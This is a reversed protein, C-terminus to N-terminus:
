HVEAPLTLAKRVPRILFPLLSGLVAAISYYAFVDTYALLAAQRSLTQLVIGSAAQAAAAASMGQDVLKHAYGALLAVYPQDLPTLHGTLQAQNSQSTATVLATALAIGISGSVNRIMAFLAAADANMQAVMTSYAILSIPAFLCGIGVSQVLRLIALTGFDVDGNIRSSAYFSGAIILFGASILRQPAIFKMLRSVVVLTVITALGGPSLLYGAWTATYGLQTETMEPLLIMSGYLVMANASMMINGLAFNRNKFVRLNVIPQRGRLLWTVAGVLGVAALVAFVRITGSSFWDAEQGRDLVYELSGLGLAILGLGIYDTKGGRGRRAWPPDEVVAAIAVTAMIGVPVNILFVWRWSMNDTIWGGLTPGLVPALITAMATATFATARRAPPFTDLLIAQQNPQLGGGFIGQMIRFIVLQPLSTAVGCLLSCVTFMSVCILLYNKRGFIRGLWGSLPLVIGNAVLYSTLAWTSEETSVSLSGAIHPLAVNVITTDLVEMFTASTVVIAVVWPNVSPRWSAAAAADATVSM